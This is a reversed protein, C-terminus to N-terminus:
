RVLLTYLNLAFLVFGCFVLLYLKDLSSITVSAALRSLTRILRWLGPTNMQLALLQLLQICVVRNVMDTLMRLIFHYQSIM